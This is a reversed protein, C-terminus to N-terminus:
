GNLGLLLALSFLGVLDLQLNDLSELALDLFFQLVNARVDKLHKLFVDNGRSGRQFAFHEKVFHSYWTYIYSIYM